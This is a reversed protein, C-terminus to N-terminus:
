CCVYYCSPYGPFTVWCCDSWMWAWPKRVLNLLSPSRHRGVLALGSLPLLLANGYYSNPYIFLRNSPYSTPQVGITDYYLLWDVISIASTIHQGYSISYRSSYLQHTCVLLCSM